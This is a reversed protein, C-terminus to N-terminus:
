HSLCPVIPTCLSLTSGHVNNCHSITRKGPIASKIDINNLVINTCGIHDSCVPDIAIEDVSTGYVNRFTMNSIEVASQM